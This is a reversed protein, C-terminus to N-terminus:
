LRAQNHDRQHAAGKGAPAHLAFGGGCDIKAKIQRVIQEYIPTGDMNSLIIEM